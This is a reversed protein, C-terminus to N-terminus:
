AAPAARLRWRSSVRGRAAPSGALGPRAPSHSESTGLLAAAALTADQKVISNGGDVHLLATLSAAIYQEVKESNQPFQM